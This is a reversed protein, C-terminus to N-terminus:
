AANHGCGPLACCCCFCSYNKICPRFTEPWLYHFIYCGHERPARINCKLLFINCEKPLCHPSSEGDQNFYALDKLKVLNKQINASQYFGRNSYYLCYAIHKEM